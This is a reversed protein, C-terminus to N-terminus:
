VRRKGGNHLNVQHGEPLERGFRRRILERFNLQPLSDEISQWSPMFDVFIHKDPRVAPDDDFLGAPIEVLEGGPQAPPVLSGCRSCFHSSYAPPQNLLPAEYDRILDAGAVLVYDDCLVEIMELSTSGSKKRCRTCHCIESPGNAKTIEFQVGGCLCSGSISM